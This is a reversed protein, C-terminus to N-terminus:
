KAFAIACQDPDIAGQGHCQSWGFHFVFVCFPMAFAAGFQSRGLRAQRHVGGMAATARPVRAHQVSTHMVSKAGHSLRFM